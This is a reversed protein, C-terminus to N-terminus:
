VQETEATETTAEETEQAPIERVEPRPIQNWAGQFNKVIKPVDNVEMVALLLESVALMSLNDNIYDTSIDAGASVIEIVQDFSTLVLEPLKKAFATEFDDRLEPDGWVEQILTTVASMVRRIQRVRLPKVTFSETGVEVNIGVPFLIDFAKLDETKM